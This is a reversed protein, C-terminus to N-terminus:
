QHHPAFNLLNRPCPLDKPMLATAHEIAARRQATLAPARFPSLVAVPRGHKTILVEEGGEVAALLESFGQNAQRASVSKMAARLQLNHLVYGQSRVIAVVPARRDRFFSPLLRTAARSCRHM